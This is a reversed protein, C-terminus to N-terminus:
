ASCRPWPPSRPAIRVVEDYVPRTGPPPPPVGLSAGVLLDNGHAASLATVIEVYRGLVPHATDISVIEELLLRGGGALQDTWRGVLVPADPLHALLYRAFVVSAPPVPWPTATVDAQEFRLTPDDGSVARARAVFEGSADLGVTRRAGTMRALLRTTSGPGCGLDVALEVGPGTAAAIFAATSPEFVEALLDLRNGATPTDGYPYSPSTPEAVGGM